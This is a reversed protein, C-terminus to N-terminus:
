PLPDIGPLTQQSEARTEAAVGTPRRCPCRPSTLPVSRPMSRPRTRPDPHVHSRFPELPPGLHLRANNVTEQATVSLINRLTGEWLQIGFRYGQHTAHM